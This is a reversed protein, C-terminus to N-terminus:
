TMVLGLNYTADLEEPSLEEAKEYAEKAENLKKLKEYAIGLNYYIGSDNKISKTLYVLHMMAEQPFGTDLLLVALERRLQINASDERLLEQLEEIREAKSM